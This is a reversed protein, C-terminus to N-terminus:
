YRDSFIELDNELGVIYDDHGHGPATHVIGTGQELTVHNGFIVKSEREVFPHSVVLSAIQGSSIDTESEHKKGTIEEFQEILGKALVLNDKGFKYIAYEFDPSPM